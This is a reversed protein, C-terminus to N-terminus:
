IHLDRNTVGQSQGTKKKKSENHSDELPEKPSLKESPARRATKGKKETCFYIHNGGKNL